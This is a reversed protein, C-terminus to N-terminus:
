PSPLPKKDKKENHALLVRFLVDSPMHAVSDAVAKTRIFKLAAEAAPSVKVDAATIVGDRDKFVVDPASDGAPSKKEDVM